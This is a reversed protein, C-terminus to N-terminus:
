PRSKAYTGVTFVRGPRMCVNQYDEFTSQDVAKVEFAKKVTVDFNYEIMCHTLIEGDMLIVHQGKTYEVTQETFGSTTVFLGKGARERSPGSSPRCTLGDPWAGPTVARRGADKM